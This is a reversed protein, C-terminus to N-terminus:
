KKLSPQAFTVSYSQKITVAPRIIDKYKYDGDFLLNRLAATAGYTIKEEVFSPFTDKFIKKLAPISDPNVSYSNSTKREAVGYATIFKQTTSDENLLGKFHDKIQDLREKRESIAEQLQLAEIILSEELTLAGVNDEVKANYFEEATMKVAKTSKKTRSM